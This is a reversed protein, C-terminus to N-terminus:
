ESIVRALEVADASTIGSAKVEGDKSISLKATRHRSLWIKIGGAIATAAASTAVVAVTAGLDMTDETDKVRRTSIGEALTAIEDMLEAALTQSTAQDSATVSLEFEM